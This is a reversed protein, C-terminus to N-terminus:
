NQVDQHSKFPTHGQRHLVNCIVAPAGFMGEHHRRRMVRNGSKDRGGNGGFNLLSQGYIIPFRRHLACQNKATRSFGPPIPADDWETGVIALIVHHGFYIINCVLRAGHRHSVELYQTESWSRAILLLQCFVTGSLWGSM